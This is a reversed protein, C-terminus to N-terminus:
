TQQLPSFLASCMEMEGKTALFLCFILFCFSYCIPDTCILTNVEELQAEISLSQEDSHKPFSLTPPRTTLRSKTQGLRSKWLAM